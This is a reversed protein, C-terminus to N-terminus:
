KHRNDEAKIVLSLTDENLYFEVIDRYLCYWILLSLLNYVDFKIHRTELFRLNVGEWILADICM